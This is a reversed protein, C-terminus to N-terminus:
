CIGGELVKRPVAKGKGKDKRRVQNPVLSLSSELTGMSRTLSDMDMDVDVVGETATAPEPAQKEYTNSYHTRPRILSAGLGEAETIRNLGHNTISFYYERPYEVNDAL